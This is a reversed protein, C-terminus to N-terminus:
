RAVGDRQKSSRWARLPLPQKLTPNFRSPERPVAVIVAVGDVRQARHVAVIVAVGDVLVLVFCLGHVCTVPAGCGQASDSSVYVNM